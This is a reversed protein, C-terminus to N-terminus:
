INILMSLKRGWLRRSELNYLLLDRLREEYPLYELGRMMTNRQWVRELLKRDKKFQLHIETSKKEARLFKIAHRQKMWVEMDSAMKDSQGEAAM